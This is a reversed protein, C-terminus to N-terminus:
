MFVKQNQCQIVRQNRSGRFRLTEDKQEQEFKGDVLVDIYFLLENYLPHQALFEYKYGTYCWITKNTEKKIRKALAIFAKPQSFPDGGSFTVNAVPNNNIVQMISDISVMKGNKRDWSQPNHCGPCQHPCGAGYIATRFGPGDVITDEVIDLLCLQETEINNSDHHYSVVKFDSVNM